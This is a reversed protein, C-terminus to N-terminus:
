EPVWRIIPLARRFLEMGDPADDPDPMDPFLAAARATISPLTDSFWYSERALEVVPLARVGQEARQRTAAILQEVPKLRERTAAFFTYTNVGTALDAFPLYTVRYWASNHDLPSALPAVVYQGSGRRRFGYQVKPVVAILKTGLPVKHANRSMLPQGDVWAGETLDFGLQRTGLIGTNKPLLTFPAPGKDAMPRGRRTWEEHMKRCLEMLRREGASLDGWQRGEISRLFKNVEEPSLARLEKESWNEWYWNRTNDAM